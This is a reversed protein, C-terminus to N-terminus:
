RHLIGFEEPPQYQFLPLTEDSRALSNSSLQSSDKLQLLYFKNYIFDKKSNFTIEAIVDNVMKIKRLEKSTPQQPPKGTLEPDDPLEPDGPSVATLEMEEQVLPELRTCSEDPIPHKITDSFVTEKIMWAKEELPSVGTKEDSVDGSPDFM